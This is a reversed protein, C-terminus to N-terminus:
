ARHTVIDVQDRALVENSLSLECAGKSGSGEM